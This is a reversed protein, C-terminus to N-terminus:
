AGKWFFEVERECSEAIAHCSGISYSQRWAIRPYRISLLLRRVFSGVIKHHSIEFRGRTSPTLRCMGPHCYFSLWSFAPFGGGGASSAAQSGPQCLSIESWDHRHSLLLWIKGNKPEDWLDGLKMALHLHRAWGVGGGYACPAPKLGGPKRFKRRWLNPNGM